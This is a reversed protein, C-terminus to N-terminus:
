PNTATRSGLSSWSSGSLKYFTVTIVSGNFWYNTAATHIQELTGSGASSKTSSFALASGSAIGYQTGTADTRYAVGADVGALVAVVSRYNSTKHASLSPAAEVRSAAVPALALTLGLTLGLMKRVKKMKKM